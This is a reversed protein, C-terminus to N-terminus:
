VLAETDEQPKKLELKWTLNFDQNKYVKRANVLFDFVMLGLFVVSVKKSTEYDMESLKLM